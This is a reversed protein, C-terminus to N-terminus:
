EHANGHRRQAHLQRAERRQQALWLFLSAQAELVADIETPGLGCIPPEVGGSLGDPLQAYWFGDARRSVEFWVNVHVEGLRTGDICISRGWAVAASSNSIVCHDGGGILSYYSEGAVTNPCGGCCNGFDEPM